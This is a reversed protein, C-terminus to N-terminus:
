RRRSSLRSDIRGRVPEPDTRTGSPRPRVAGHGFADNYTKFRDVDILALTRSTTAGDLDRLGERFSRDNGLGTLDDVRALRAQHELARGIRAVHRGYALGVILTWIGSVGAASLPGVHRAALYVTVTGFALAATTRM